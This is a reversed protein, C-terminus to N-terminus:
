IKGELCWLISLNKSFGLPKFGYKKCLTSVEKISTFILYPNDLLKARQLSMNFMLEELREKRNNKDTILHSLELVYQYKLSFRNSILLSTFTATEQNTRYVPQSYLEQFLHVKYSLLGVVTGSKLICVGIKNTLDFEKQLETSGKQLDDYDLGSNLLSIAQSKIPNTAYIYDIAKYENIGIPIEKSYGM